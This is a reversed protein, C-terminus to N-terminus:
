PKGTAGDTKGYYMGAYEEPAPRECKPDLWYFSYEQYNYGLQERLKEHREVWHYTANNEDYWTYRWADGQAEASATSIKCNPARKQMEAVQEAPIPTLTGIWLRELGTLSYLPSIDTLNPLNSINLHRLETLGSLPSLDTVNTTFIELYELKPCSALPSIDSLPNMAIIFVELEPMSQVFSINYIMENHGLDVYKARTCYKLKDVEEDYLVGGVSPRSALIRETDTRVSYCTGFWIRWVVDIEPFQERIQQMRENGLPAAVGGDDMDLTRCRYLACLAAVVADGNDDIETKSLDITEDALSFSKGYLTFSYDFDAQPCAKELAAIEEWTLKCGNEDGLAVSSLASMCTLYPTLEAAATPDIGTLDLSTTDLSCDIGGVTFSYSFSVDPHAASLAQLTDAGLATGGGNGLDIAKVAPLKALAAMYTDLSASDVGALSVSEAHNDVRTGDPLAVDYTVDVNPHAQAWAIIEDTCGSGRFDATRLATFGILKATEGDHLVVALDTTDNKFTGEELAVSHTVAAAVDSFSIGWLWSASCIVLFLVYVTVCLGALRKGKM